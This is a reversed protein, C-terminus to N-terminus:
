KDTLGAVVGFYVVAFTFFVTLGDATRIDIKFIMAGAVMIELTIIFGILVAMYASFKKGGAREQIEEIYASDALAAKRKRTNEKVNWM